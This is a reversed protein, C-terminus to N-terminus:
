KLKYVYDWGDEEKEEGPGLTKCVKRAIEGKSFCLIDGKNARKYKSSDDAFYHVYRITSDGAQANVPGDYVGFRIQPNSGCSYYSYDLTNTYYCGSSPLDIDLATLDLTYEGNALHYAEEASALTKTLPILRSLQAKKVAVQYQPVAVAALIGIILVVALLEILTFGRNCSTKSTNNEM